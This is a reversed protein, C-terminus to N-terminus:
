SGLICHLSDGLVTNHVMQDNMFHLVNKIKSYLILLDAITITCKSM